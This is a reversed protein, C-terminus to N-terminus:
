FLAQLFITFFFLSSCHLVEGNIYIILILVLESDEHIHLKKLPLVFCVVVNWPNVILNVILVQHLKLWFGCILMCAVCLHWLYTYSFM